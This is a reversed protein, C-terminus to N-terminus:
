GSVLQALTAKRELYRVTKEEVTNRYLMRYITVPRTQGTRHSRQKSQEWRVRSPHHDWYINITAATLNVGESWVAPNAIIIDIEGAQFSQKIMARDEQSVNGHAIAIVKSAFRSGLKGQLWEISRPFNSWILIKQDGADEVLDYLRLLKPTDDVRHEGILTPHSCLQLLRGYTTMYNVETITKGEGTLTQIEAQATTALDQYITASVEDLQLRLNIITLPPLQEGIDARTRRIAFTKRLGRLERLRGERWSKTWADYLYDMYATHGLTSNTVCVYLGHYSQPTNAVETGSLLWRRPNKFRCLHEAAQHQRASLNALRHAEDFVLIGKEEVRELITDWFRERWFRSYPILVIEAEQAQIRDFAKGEGKLHYCVDTFAYRKRLEIQWEDCVSDSPAIITMKPRGLLWWAHLVVLSKGLGMDDGLILSGHILRPLVERQYDYLETGTPTTHPLEEWKQSWRSKHPHPVYGRRMAVALSRLAPKMWNPEGLERYIAAVRRWYLEPIHGDYIYPALQANAGPHSFWRNKEDYRM